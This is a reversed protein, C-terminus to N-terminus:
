LLTRRFHRNGLLDDSAPAKIEFFDLRFAITKGQLRLDKDRLCKCRKKVSIYLDETMNAHTNEVHKKFLDGNQSNMRHKDTNVQPKVRKGQRKKEMDEKIRKREEATLIVRGSGTLGEICVLWM